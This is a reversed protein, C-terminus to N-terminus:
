FEIKLIVPRTSGSANTLRGWQGNAVYYLDGEVLVGTTPEDYDPHNRELVTVSTIADGDVDLLLV